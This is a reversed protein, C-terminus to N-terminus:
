LSGGRGGVGGFSSSEICQHGLLEPHWFVATGTWMEDIWTGMNFSDEKTIDTLSTQRMLHAPRALLCAFPSPADVFAQGSANRFADARSGRKAFNTKVKGQLADAHPM